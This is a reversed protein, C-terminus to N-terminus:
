QLPTPAEVIVEVGRVKVKLRKDKATGWKGMDM